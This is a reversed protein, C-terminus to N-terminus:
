RKIWMKLQYDHSTDVVQFSPPVENESSHFTVLRTGSPRSDLAKFLYRSYYVYLSSSYEIQHDIRDNNDLNEFFSNYFYFNDYEGLDIQTFNGHIFDANHIGMADRTTLALRHLEKRQEVGYFTAHPYHQAAVLCFKGVGSGIDLVKKGPVNSLFAAAKRTVSMPTWHRRSLQQIREPYHWDFAADNIFRTPQLADKHHVLKTLM